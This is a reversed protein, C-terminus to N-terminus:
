QDWEKHEKGNKQESINKGKFFRILYTKYFKVGEVWIQSYHINIEERLYYYGVIIGIITMFITVMAVGQLTFYFSMQASAPFLSEFNLSGEFFNVVLSIGLIYKMMVFIVFVDGVINAVTMFVVKFFNKKPRNLSDLAVGTFRGVPLLLGYITFIRFIDATNEYKMGGLIIVFERAFIFGIILIPVIFLTVAGTYTYYTKKFKEKAGELSAKSLSPYATAIFSRLPIEIIETLKLPVSYLAVGTTGMFSSLGLIFTDSSKLLNSGILTGTTYKGFNLITKNTERNAHFIYKVGDWGKFMTLLSTILQMALYFLVITQLGFQFFFLNFFLFIVFTGTQTIRIVLIKFFQQKAQLISIANNFPLNLFALLPYWVFFLQYGSNNITEPFSIRITFVIIALAASVMLGIFWNSGTLRAKEEGQAGSLFRIIATRTIGFRLMELFNAATIFLVWKGFPDKPLTRTLLVFSLFGFAAVSLNASLSLFNKERTIKSIYNLM